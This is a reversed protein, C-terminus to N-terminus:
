CKEPLKISVHTNYNFKVVTPCVGENPTIFIVSISLVVPVRDPMAYEIVMKEVKQAQEHTLTAKDGDTFTYVYTENKVGQDSADGYVLKQTVPRQIEGNKYVYRLYGLEVDYNGDGEQGLGFADDRDNGDRFRSRLTEVIDSWKLSCTVNATPLDRLTRIANIEKTLNILSCTSLMHRSIGLDLEINDIIEDGLDFLIGDVSQCAFSVLQNYKEEKGAPYQKNVCFTNHNHHTYYFIRKFDSETVNVPDLEIIHDCDGQQRLESFKYSIVAVDLHHPLATLNCLESNAM